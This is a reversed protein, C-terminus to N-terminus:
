NCAKFASDRWSVPACTGNVLKEIRKRRVEHRTKFRRPKLINPSMLMGVLGLYEQDELEDFDKHFYVRSAQDFGTVAQGDVHGFYALKVYADLQERKTVKQDIVDKALIRSRKQGFFSDNDSEGFILDALAQTITKSGVGPTKSDVGNHVWFGPDEVMVLAQIQWYSFKEIGTCDDDACVLKFAREIASRAKYVETDLSYSGGALGVGFIILIILLIKKKM